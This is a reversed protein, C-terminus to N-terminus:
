NCSAAAILGAWEVLIEEQTSAPLIQQGGGHPL